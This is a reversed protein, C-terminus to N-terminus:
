NENDKRAPIVVILTKKATSDPAGEIKIEIIRPMKLSSLNPHDGMIFDVFSFDYASKEAFNGTPEGPVISVSM